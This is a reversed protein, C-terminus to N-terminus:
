TGTRLGFCRRLGRAVNYEGGGRGRRFPGRRRSGGRARISDCCRRASRSSIGAASVEPRVGLRSMRSDEDGRARAAHDRRVPRGAGARSRVLWSGGCAVVAPMALYDVPNSADIGGTPIFLVDPYTASVARLSRRDVSRRRRFCRLVVAWRRSGSEGVADGRGPFFPLGLGECARVVEENTGPAVAFDAGAEWGRPGARGVAGDRSGILMGEVVRAREIADAASQHRFTIEICGIGGELLAAAVAPASSPDEITAVPVVRHARLREVIAEVQAATPTVVRAPQAHDRHPADPPGTAVSPPHVAVPYPRITDSRAAAILAM